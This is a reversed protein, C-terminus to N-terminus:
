VSLTVWGNKQGVVLDPEITSLNKLGSLALDAVTLDDIYIDSIDQYGVTFLRSALRLDDKDPVRTDQAACAVMFFAISITGLRHWINRRPLRPKIEHQGGM